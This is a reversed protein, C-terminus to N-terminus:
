LLSAEVGPEITLVNDSESLSGRDSGVRSQLMTPGSCYKVNVLGSIEKATLLAQWNIALGVVVCQIATLLISLYRLPVRGM